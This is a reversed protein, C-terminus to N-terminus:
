TTRLIRYRGNRNIAMLLPQNGATLEALAKSLWKATYGTAALVDGLDAPRVETEGHAALTTIHERLLTRAQEPNSQQPLALSFRRPTPTTDLEKAPDIDDPPDNLNVGPRAALAPVEEEQDDDAAPSPAPTTTTPMAPTLARATVPDLAQRVQTWGTVAAALDDRQALESRCPIPWRGTPVGPSEIYLYGPRSSGWTEPSAGADVTEATLALTPDDRSDIGFCVNTAFQSRLSTPARDHTWRQQSLVLCIGASRAREAVQVLAPHGSWAASEEVWVLLHSLSCGPMWETLDERGLAETRAPIVKDALIDFFAEAHDDETILLTLGDKVPKVTQDRKVTDVVVLAGDARTLYDTMVVLAWETKGSGTMGTARVHTAPRVGPRGTLWLGVTEGDEAVGFRLPADGVSRGPASPGGWAITDRLQDVPVVEIRGTRVSDPDRHVRVASPAVDLASAIADRSGEVDALTDGHPMAVRAKVKAGDVSPRGIRADKLAAVADALGGGTTRTPQEDPNAKSMLRMVAVAVSATLSGGAWLDLWPRDWPGAITAGLMWLSGSATLLASIRQRIVGRARGAAWTLATLGGGAATLGAAAWPNTGWWHHAAAAAPWALLCGAPCVLYPVAASRLDVTYSMPALGGNRPMRTRSRSRKM